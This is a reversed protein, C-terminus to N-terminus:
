ATKKKMARVANMRDRAEQSGKVLKSSVPAVVPAVAKKIMKSPMAKQATPIPLAVEKAKKVAKAKVAKAPAKLVEVVKDTIAEKMGPMKTHKHRELETAIAVKSM